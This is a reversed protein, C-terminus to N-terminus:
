DQSAPVTLITRVLCSHSFRFWISKLAIQRSFLDDHLRSFYRSAIGEIVGNEALKVELNSSKIHM